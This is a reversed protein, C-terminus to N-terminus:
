YRENRCLLTSKQVIVNSIKNRVSTLAAITALNTICPIEGKVKNIKANLFANTTVLNTINSINNYIM